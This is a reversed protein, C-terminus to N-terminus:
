AMTKGLAEGVAEAFKRLESQKGIKSGKSGEIDYLEDSTLLFTFDNRDVLGVRIPKKTEFEVLLGPNCSPELLRASTVRAYSISQKNNIIKAVSYEVWCASKLKNVPGIIAAITTLREFERQDVEKYGKNQKEWIKSRVFDITEEAGSFTKMPQVQGNVGIRGNRVKVTFMQTDYDVIWFKNHIDGSHIYIGTPM